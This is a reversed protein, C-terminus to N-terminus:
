GSGASCKRVEPLLLPQLIVKAFQISKGIRAALPQGKKATVFLFSRRMGAHM